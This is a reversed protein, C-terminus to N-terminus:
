SFAAKARAVQDATPTGGRPPEAVRAPPRASSASSDYSGKVQSEVTGGTVVTVVTGGTVVPPLPPLSWTAPGGRGTSQIRVEAAARELTRPNIGQGLAAEVVEAKLRPGDGLFERLWKAAQNRPADDQRVKATEQRTALEDLREEVKGLEHIRSSTIPRDLEPDHGVTAPEIQYRLTYPVKAALNNKSQGFWFTAKNSGAPELGGLAPLLQDRTLPDEEVTVLVARAVASFARSGMLRTLLDGSTSKNQHILGLVALQADHALRSIPELARRVEADKHTDLERDVAGMLPDLLILAVDEARCLRELDGMDTPLSVGTTYGDPVEADVRWVRELDAGAAVLRPVITQEWADETASVVVSRPTGKFTGPLTGQTLRAAIGYAWTSKGTGERGGLLTLGGLPVWHAGDDEWVWETARMTMSSARQARVRRRGPEEEAPQGHLTEAGELLSTIAETRRGAEIGVLVDDLGDKGGARLTRLDAVRVASAGAEHLLAPVREEAAKRVNPNTFRDADFILVVEAGEAWSLDSAPGKKTEGHIGDCGNMGIVAWGDPAWSAAAGHQGIGEVALFRKAGSIHRAARSLGNMGKGMLAKRVDCVDKAARNRGARQLQARDEACADDSFDPMTAYGAHRSCRKPALRWRGDPHIYRIRGEPFLNDRWDLWIIDPDEADSAANLRGMMEVTWAKGALWARHKESLKATGEPNRSGEPAGTEAPANPKELM